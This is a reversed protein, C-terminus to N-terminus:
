HAPNGSRQRALLWRPSEGAKSFAARKSVMSHLMSTCTKRCARSPTVAEIKLGCGPDRLSIGLEGALGGARGSRIFATRRSRSFLLSTM